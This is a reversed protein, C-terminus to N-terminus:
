KIIISKGTFLGTKQDTFKVLYLGNKLHSLDVTIREADFMQKYVLQGTVTFVEMFLLNEVTEITFIGDSPNPYIAVDLAKQITNIGAGEEAYVKIDDIQWTASNDDTSFYVFAIYIDGAGFGSIDIEGSETWVFFTTGTPWAVQNSLDVWTFQNPNGSGDYDTSVKLELAPGTYGTSSFFSLKENDFDSLDIAPSILWDENEYYSQNSYGSMVACPTNNIGFTNDRSWEQVGVVNVQSWGQWSDDFTTFSVDVYQAIYTTAEATPPEDDTKYDIAQGAGTFPFIMFYYTVGNPLNAFVYQQAGYPVSMAATGDSLDPDNTVPVGDEPFTFNNEDSALILYGSPVVEGIADTWTLKISQGMATATFDAPYESPEGYYWELDALSRATIYDGDTRSNLIGVINGEGSPIITGIYDVDYFTTRFEGTAKSGDSIQYVIGNEFAGGAEAFTADVIRVLQAEYDEFNANMQAITIEAPDIQNGASSPAGPDLAPNFQLMNGYETLSGIMGTLGDGIEYETTMIGPDDDILIAATADQIYKQNRFSQRFTLVVEGTVQYFEDKGSFAARLEALNAVPTVQVFTYNAQAINSPEMGPAYARAKLTTNTSITIPDAYVSSSEDPDSGDTTYYITSNPTECTIGVDISSFYQGSPHSLVPTAVMNPNFATWEVNDVVVQGDSNNVNIFKIVFDGDINLDIVGSNKIVGQEGSSTVNGVVVDNILVNLNVNSSFAQSYDFQLTGIGNNITGSYFNSQPTRNRGIMIAKGTIEYDGRCQTYTWTSGDQGTFTGDQYTSGTAPFNDFTELGQGYVVSVILTLLLIATLKKM